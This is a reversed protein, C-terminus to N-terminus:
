SDSVEVVQHTEIRPVTFSVRGDAFEFAVGEGQPQLCVVAPAADRKLSVNVDYLPPPDEVVEIQKGRPEVPAYLLHVVDREESEQRLVSAIGAAPLSTTLTAEGMVGRIMAGVLERIWPPALRHYQEFVPLAAYVCRKNRVVAPPGVVGSSPAHRVSQFHRWTRPFFPDFGDALVEAGDAAINLRHGYSVHEVAELDAGLADRPRFFSAEFDSRGTFSVGFADFTFRGGDAGLCAEHAGLLAGGAAVFARLKELTPEDPKVEDPLIVLRYGDFTDRGDVIDFQHDLEELLKVTGKLSVPLDLHTGGVGFAEPTLVAIDARPTADRCWPEVAEVHRFSEGILRYHHDYISGDPDTPEGIICGAGLSLIRGMEYRMGGAPKHSHYDGWVTYFVGTMGFTPKGLTRAYRQTVPLHSYGWAGGPVSELEWHTFADEVERLRPGVHGCNYTIATDPRHGRIQQSTETMYRHLLDVNFRKRAAPDEFDLGAALMDRKTWVSADDQPMLMDLFLGDPAFLEMLEDVHDRLFDRYPSNLALFHNFGPALPPPGIIRGEPSVNLWGPERKEFTVDHQVSTYLHVRIGADRCAEIQERLLDRDLKPHKLDPFRASDFYMHGFHCRATLTIAEVRSEVLARTFADRDFREGVSIDPSIHFEHIVQRLPLMLSM